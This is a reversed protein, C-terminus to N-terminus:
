DQAVPFYKNLLHLVYYPRVCKVPGPNVANIMIGQEVRFENNWTRAFSEVAAKSAQVITLACM